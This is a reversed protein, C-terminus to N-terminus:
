ILPSSLNLANSEVKWVDVYPSKIDGGGDRGIWCALTTARTANSRWAHPRPMEKGELKWGNSHYSRDEKGFWGVVIVVDAECGRFQSGHTLLVGGEELWEAAEKCDDSGTCCHVRPLLLELEGHFERITMPMAVQGSYGFLVAVSTKFIDINKNKIYLNVCSAMFGSNEANVPDYLLLTPRMGVVTTSTGPSISATFTQSKKDKKYIGISSEMKWYMNPNCLSSNIQTTRMVHSLNKVNYGVRNFMRTMDDHSFKVDGQHDVYIVSSTSMAVLVLKFKDKLSKLTKEINSTDGEAILEWDDKQIHLEDIVM